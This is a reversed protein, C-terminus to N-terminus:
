SVAARRRGKPRLSREARASMELRVLESLSSAGMKKMVAARHTEVTRQNIGLRASIDKNALGAVVLDMVERERKTLGAIRM